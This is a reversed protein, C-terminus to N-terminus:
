FSLIENQFTSKLKSVAKTSIIEPFVRAFKHLIFVINVWKGWTKLKPGESFISPSKELGKMFVDMEKKALYQKHHKLAEGPGGGVAQKLPSEGPYSYGKMKFPSESM